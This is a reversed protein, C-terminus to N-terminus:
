IVLFTVQADLNMSISINKTDFVFILSQLHYRKSFTLLAYLLTLFIILVFMRVYVKSDIFINFICTTYIICLLISFLFQFRTNYLVVCLCCYVFVGM